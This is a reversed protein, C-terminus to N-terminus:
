LYRQDGLQKQPLYVDALSRLGYGSLMTRLQASQSENINSGIAILNSEINGLELLCRSLSIRINQFISDMNADTSFTPNAQILKRHLQDTIDSSQTPIM